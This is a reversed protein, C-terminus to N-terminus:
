RRRKFVLASSLLATIWLTVGPEPVTDLADLEDDPRLGITEARAFIGFGGTFNTVLIDGPAYAGSLVSPSFKSLSFWARDVGFDLTGHNFRDDLVLADLDDDRLLGIDDEGSAFVHSIHNLFIDNAKSGSGFGNSASLDDISFYIGAGPDSNLEIGDVDDGFFGPQLGWGEEDNVRVNSQVPPLAMYVDGAADAVSPQAESFVASGPRGVAVRDVSFVPTTLLDLGFSFADLNDFDGLSFRDRLGLTRGQILVDPGPILIDDPTINGDISPSAPDLSFKPVTSQAVAGLPLLLLGLTVLGFLRPMTEEKMGQPARTNRVFAAM